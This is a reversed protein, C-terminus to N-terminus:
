GKKIERTKLVSSSAFTILTLAHELEGRRERRELDRDSKEGRRGRGRENANCLRKCVALRFFLSGIGGFDLFLTVLDEGGSLVGGVRQDLALKGLRADKKGVDEMGRLALEVDRRRLCWSM